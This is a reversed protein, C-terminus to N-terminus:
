ALLNNHSAKFDQIKKNQTNLQDTLEQIAKKEADCNSEVKTAQVWQSACYGIVGANEGSPVTIQYWLPNEGDTGPAQVNTFWEYGSPIDGLDKSSKNPELRINFTGSNIAKCKLLFPLTEVKIMPTKNIPLNNDFYTLGQKEPDIYSNLDNYNARIGLHVHKGTSNGSNGMLAICDGKKVKGAKLIFRAHHVTLYGRGDIGRIYSWLGGSGDVGSTLVGDECALIGISTNKNVPSYDCGNQTPRAQTRFGSTLRITNKEKDAFTFPYIAM